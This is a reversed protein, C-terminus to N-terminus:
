ENTNNKINKILKNFEDISAKVHSELENYFDGNKKLKNQDQRSNNIQDLLIKMVDRMATVTHLDSFNFNMPNLM